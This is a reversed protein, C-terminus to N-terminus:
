SAFRHGHLWGGRGRRQAAARDHEAHAPRDGGVLGDLDRAAEDLRAGLDLDHHGLGGCLENSWQCEPADGPALREDIEPRRGPRVGLRVDGEPAARVEVQDHRGAGRRDRPDRVADGVVEDRQGRERHAPRHQNRGCHVRLHPGVGGRPVVDGQQALAADVEEAGDVPAESGTLHTRAPQHLGGGDDVVELRAEPPGVAVERALADGDGGAARALRGVGHAEDAIARGPLHAVGDGLRRAVAAGVDHQDGAGLERRGAGGLDDVDLRRALHEGGELRM